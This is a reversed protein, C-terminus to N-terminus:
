AGGALLGYSLLGYVCIGAVYLVGALSPEGDRNAAPIMGQAVTTLLFGSAVAILLIRVSAPQNRLLLFGLMAGAMLCAFLLFSLRRRQSPPMGQQKATSITVFALPLTSIAIGLALLLGTALTLTSGIGIIAGDVVLDVLIGVYLGTSPAANGDDAAAARRASVYEVVVFTAGGIFFALAVWVLQGARVAVPMLSFAVLATIVGAAFQLAGGVVRYPVEFREALPAGAYTLAAAIFAIGTVLLFEDM